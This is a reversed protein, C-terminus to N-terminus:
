ASRYILRNGIEFENEHCYFAILASNASFIMADDRAPLFLNRWNQLFFESTCKFCEEDGFVVVLQDGVPIRSKLWDTADSENDGFEFRDIYGVTVPHLGLHNKSDYLSATLCRGINVM